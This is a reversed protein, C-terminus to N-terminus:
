VKRLNFPSFRKPTRYMELYDGRWKFSWESRTEKVCDIYHYIPRTKDITFETKLLGSNHLRMSFEHDETDRIDAYQIERVISTRVINMPSITRYYAEPREFWSQFDISHYFLKNFVGREYHAGLFAACDYDVGSTIMPVFTKLYYPAIIDDDDIFCHYKGTCRSVLKNRKAGLTMERNDVEYLVEVKIEPCEKVQRMIETYAAQFLARREYLTPMLISIDVMVGLIYFNFYM